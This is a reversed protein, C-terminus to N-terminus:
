QACVPRVSHGCRRNGNSVYCDGSDFYLYRAGYSYDMGLSSSLYRGNADVDYLEGDHRDGAAPLFISNGNPGTFLCGKVGNHTTWVHTCNSLLESMEENTPMRWGVGWNATAADDTAELTTLADTFGDNGSEANFCYKTLTTSSGNCYRYTDWNYTEKPETEGWAFYDGYGEPSNAGVNCTAWLISSPLGLDVYNHGNFTGSVTLTGQNGLSDDQETSEDKKCGSIVLMGTLTVVAFIMLYLKKM